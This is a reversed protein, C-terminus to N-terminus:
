HGQSGIALFAKNGEVRHKPLQSISPSGYALGELKKCINCRNLHKKVIQRGRIIWFKSRLQVLTEKVGNHYVNLHAKQIILGTVNHDPPLVM